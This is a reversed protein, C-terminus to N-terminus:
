PIHWTYHIFVSIKFFCDRDRQVSFQLTRPNAIISVSQHVLINGALNRSMAPSKSFCAAAFDPRYFSKGNYGQGLARLCTIVALFEQVFNRPVTTL